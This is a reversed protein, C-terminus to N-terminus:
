TFCDAGARQGQLVKRVAVDFPISPMAEAYINM